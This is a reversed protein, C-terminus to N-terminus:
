PPVRQYELSLSHNTIGFTAVSKRAMKPSIHNNVVPGTALVSMNRVSNGVSLVAATEELFMVKVFLDLHKVYMTAEEKTQVEDNASVVKTPSSSIRLTELEASNIDKKSVMHM